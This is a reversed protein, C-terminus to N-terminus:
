SDFGLGCADLTRLLFNRRGQEHDARDLARRTVQVVAYAIPEPPFPPPTERVMRLRTRETEQGALKDLLVNAYFRTAAVGLGTFGAAYAVRGGMALCAFACFRTSTDIAGGWRHTFRLGALQPFTTFFHAGLRAFTAPRDDYRADIKGGLRYVADYGGFLIRNDRTIRYYHFQNAMDSLGQRNRWGIAALQQENLPESMLAYDYVTLTHLRYRKLLSPFANTALAVHAADLCGYATRLRVGGPRAQLAQVPSAEHIDVGLQTAVRTLEVVLKAPHLMATGQKDWRGALYTPSNIEARMQEASLYGEGRLTAVQHSEVAVVIAGSREFDCDMGYRAMTAAIEDLNQLGLAEIQQYEEPWRRRGNDEGHTLSAECFGGNRGSAAWGLRQAELLTVRRQPDREKALVATWLGLFGGGVIALDTTRQGELAAFARRQTDVDDLWFPRNVSDALARHVLGADPPQREFVTQQM